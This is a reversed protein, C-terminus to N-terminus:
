TTYWSGEKGGGVLTDPFFDVSTVYFDGKDTGAPIQYYYYDYFQIM